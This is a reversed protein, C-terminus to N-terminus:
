SYALCWALYQTTPLEKCGLGMLYTSKDDGNYLCSFWPKHVSLLKGLIVHRASGGHPENWTQALGTCWGRVGPGNDMRGSAKGGM